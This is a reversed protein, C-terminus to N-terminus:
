AGLIAAVRSRMTEIWYANTLRHRVAPDSHAEAYQDRWRILNDRTIEDWDDLIVVPLGDYLPDLASKQVIVINGLVLSEWTRHCDLGNGHPSAVFAFQTKQKWLNNRRVKREQFHVEPNARLLGELSERREGWKQRPHIKLHFDAHVALRREATPPMNAVLAKLQREQAAPHAPWHGWKFKNSITHFDLGIPIGSIRGSTDSGDFNQSFWHAVHPNGLVAGARDFGSPIDMDNDGTVLAFRKGVTPLVEEVFQPLASLRVWVLDGEKIDAFEGPDFGIDRTGGPQRKIFDAGGNKDCCLAIGRSWVYHTAEFPQNISARYLAYAIALAIAAAAVSGLFYNM